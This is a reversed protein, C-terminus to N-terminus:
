PGRWRGAPRPRASLIDMVTVVTVLAAVGDPPPGRRTEPPSSSGLCSHLDVGSASRLSLGAVSHRLGTMNMTSIPEPKVVTRAIRWGVTNARRSGGGGQGGGAR